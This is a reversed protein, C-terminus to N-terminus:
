GKQGVAAQIMPGIKLYFWGLLLGRLQCWTWSTAPREKGDRPADATLTTWASETAGVHTHIALRVNRLPMSRHSLHLFTNTAPITCSLDRKPVLQYRIQHRPPTMASAAPKNASARATQREPANTRITANPIAGIQQSQTWAPLDQPQWRLHALACSLSSLLAFDRRSSQWTELSRKWSLFGVSSLAAPSHCSHKICM